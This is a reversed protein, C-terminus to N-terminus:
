AAKNAIADRIGEVLGELRAVRESLSAIDRHIENRLENLEGRQDKLAQRVDALSAHLAGHGSLILGALAIAVAVIAYTEPSM